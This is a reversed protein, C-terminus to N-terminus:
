GGASTSSYSPFSILSCCCCCLLALFCSHSLFESDQIMGKDCWCCCSISISRRRCTSAGNGQSEKVDLPQMEWRHLADQEIAQRPIGISGCEDGSELLGQRVSQSGEVQQGAVYAQGRAPPIPVLDQVLRTVADGEGCGLVQQGGVVGDVHGGDGRQHGPQRPAARHERRQRRSWGGSQRRRACSWASGGCRPLEREQQHRRREHEDPSQCAPSQGSVRGPGEPGRRCM